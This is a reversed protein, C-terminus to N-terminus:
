TEPASSAAEHTEVAVGPSSMSEDGRALLPNASLQAEIESQLEPGSLQLLEVSQRLQQSLITKQALSQFLAAKPSSM